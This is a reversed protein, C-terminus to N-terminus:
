NHMFIILAARRRMAVYPLLFETGLKKEMLGCRWGLSDM